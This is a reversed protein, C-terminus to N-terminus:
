ETIKPLFSELIKICEEHNETKADDLPTREWRDLCNIFETYSYKKCYNVIYKVINKHGNSAALHLASRNDYDAMLIDVNEARLRKIECLDGEAAAFLLSMLSIQINYGKKETPDIKNSIGPLNNDYQHFNFTKTLRTAFDIGRVSNGNKDLRPSFTAIGMKGPIVLFIGGGVGSKAPIGVHFAWEGSYDYMGCSNMLSLCNKVNESEFIKENTVPCIGGNALTSALISLQECTYEISCTQFYFDLVDLLDNATKIHGLFAKKEKMMFGLCMNRDADAKESLFTAHQYGIKTNGALRKWINMAKNFRDSRTKGIEIMSCSMIAGANIMPNHPIEREGDVCKLIAKNFEVGSPERGMCRHVIDFGNEEVAMLYSIPKSCSQVCFGFDTDGVSYRQGDITCVSVGFLKPDVKALEPIYTAINGDKNPKVKSYINEIKNCFEQFDPIILKGTLAKNILSSNRSVINCFEEEGLEVDKRIGDKLNLKSSIDKLRNDSIKLGNEKLQDILTHSMVFGNDNIDLSEFLNKLYIIKGDHGGSSTISSM